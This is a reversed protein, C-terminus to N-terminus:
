PGVKGEAQCIRGGSGAHSVAESRQGFTVEDAPGEQSSETFHM